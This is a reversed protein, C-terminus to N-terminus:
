GSWVGSVSFIYPRKSEPLIAIITVPGHCSDSMVSWLTDYPTCTIGGEAARM